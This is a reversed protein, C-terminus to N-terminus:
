PIESPDIDRRHPLGGGAKACWYSFLPGLIRSRAVLNSM